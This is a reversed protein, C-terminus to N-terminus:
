LKNGTFHCIRSRGQASGMLQDSHTLKILDQGINYRCTIWSKFM